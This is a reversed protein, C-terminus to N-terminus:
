SALATWRPALWLAALIALNVAVGMFAREWDLATLVLSLVATCALVTQWAPWHAQWAVASAVFALAAVAWLAGYIWMGGEGVDWRGGLLTTKYPLGEVQGLKMYATTGMLHILGHLVLVAAAAYALVKSM